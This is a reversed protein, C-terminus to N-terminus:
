DSLILIGCPVKFPHALTYILTVSSHSFIFGLLSAFRLVRRNSPEQRKGQFVKRLWCVPGVPPSLGGPQSWAPRKRELAVDWGMPREESLTVQRPSM